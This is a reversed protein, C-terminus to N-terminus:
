RSLTRVRQDLPPLFDSALVEAAAPVRPLRNTQAILSISRTFRAEDVAGIGIRAGEKHAMEIQLTRELRLREVDRRGGGTRRMVADLGPGIDQAIAALGANFGRVLGAVAQPDQKLLRQSVMLTSGYLDPVHDAYRLHRVLKEPERNGAAMAADLTSVYGFVGHTSSSGRLGEVMDLMGGGGGVVNVKTADVGTSRCFAGFTRLAVDSSHGIITKGELDKPTRIPGGIDVAVTSPSANFAVFVAVPAKAPERAVVEILANIDGYGVDFEGATMRPAATYAGGGPVLEVELGERALYGGDIALLLWAQPGSYSTNLLMRLRKLKAQARATAPM